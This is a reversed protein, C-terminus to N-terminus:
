AKEKIELGLFQLLISIYIALALAQALSRTNRRLSVFPAYEPVLLNSAHVHTDLCRDYLGAGDGPHGSQGFICDDIRRAHMGLAVGLAWPGLSAGRWHNYM